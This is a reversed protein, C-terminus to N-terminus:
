RAVMKWESPIPREEDPLRGIVMARYDFIHELQRKVLLGHVVDGLLGFPLSYRVEDSMLTGEPIDEFRHVHHWLSYPGNIQEDVFLDPPEYTTILTRWRVPFGLWRITYDIVTGVKMTIPLPTLIRFGLSPPTIHALNEASEFFAFVESRPLPILQSRRLSYIKM